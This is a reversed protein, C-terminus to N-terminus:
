EVINSWKSCRWKMEKLRVRSEREGEDEGKGGGQRTGVM